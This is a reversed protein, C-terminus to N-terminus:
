PQYRWFWAVWTLVIKVSLSLSIFSLAAIELNCHIHTIHPHAGKEEGGILVYYKASDINIFPVIPTYSLCSNLIQHNVTGHSYFSIFLHLHTHLRINVHIRFNSVVAVFVTIFLNWVRSEEATNWSTKNEIVITQDALCKLCDVWEAGSTPGHGGRGDHGATQLENLHLRGGARVCGGWQGPFVPPQHSRTPPGRRFDYPPAVDTARRYRVRSCTFSNLISQRLLSTKSHLTANSLFTPARDSLGARLPQLFSQACSPLPASSSLFGCGIILMCILAGTVWM